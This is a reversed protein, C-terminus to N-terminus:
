TCSHHEKAFKRFSSQHLARLHKTMDERILGASALQEIGLAASDSDQSSNAELLLEPICENGALEENSLDEEEEESTNDDKVIPMPPNAWCKHERLLEAMGLEAVIQQAAERACRVAEAIDQDTMSDVRYVKAQHHGDKKKHAEVRPYRIGTQNCDAEQCVQIHLRHLRRLLGVMRFNIVISFTSTMSRAARFIKECSQSGLKWPMFCKSDPPLSDCATLLFTIPAHANLEICM